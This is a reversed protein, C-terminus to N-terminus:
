QCNRTYNIAEILSKESNLWRTSGGETWIQQKPAAHGKQRVRRTGYAKFQEMASDPDISDFCDVIIHVHTTRVNKEIIAWKQIQCHERLVDDVIPRTTDNLLYIPWKM